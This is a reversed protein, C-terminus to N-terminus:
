SDRWWPAVNREIRAVLRELYEPHNRLDFDLQLLTQRAAFFALVDPPCVERVREGIIAAVGPPIQEPLLASWYALTVLDQRWDGVTALEWDFVGTVEDGIALFNRHHFDSHVIGDDLFPIEPYREVVPEIELALGRTDDRAKLAPLWARMVPIGQHRREARRGAAGEHMQALELLRPAHAEHLVEPIAGPLREQLSWAAGLAAGTGFYEPAPYGHARLRSSLEAGQAFRAPWDALDSLPLAKLVMERGDGDAVLTAGFEGGALPAVIRLGLERAMRGLLSDVRAAKDWQEDDAGPM